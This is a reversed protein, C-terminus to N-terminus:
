QPPREEPPPPVTESPQPGYSPEGPPPAGGPPPPVMRRRRSAAIAVAAVVAVVAGIIAGLFLPQSLARLLSNPASAYKYDVLQQQMAVQNEGNYSEVLVANGVEESYYSRTREGEASMSFAPLGEGTGGTTNTWSDIAITGLTGGRVRVQQSEMAIYETRATLFYTADEPRGQGLETWEIWEDSVDAEVVVSGRRGTELPFHWDNRVVDVAATSRMSKNFSFAGLTMTFNTYMWGSGNRMGAEAGPTPSRMYSTMRGVIDITTGQIDLSGTMDAESTEVIVTRQGQADVVRVTTNGQLRLPEGEGVGDLPVLINGTVNYRWFDGTSYRPSQASAASVGPALAMTAIAVALVSGLRAGRM